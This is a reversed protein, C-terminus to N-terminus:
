WTLDRDTLARKKNTISLIDSADNPIGQSQRGRGAGGRGGRGSKGGRFGGRTKSEREASVISSLSEECRAFVGPSAKAQAALSDAAPVRKPPM